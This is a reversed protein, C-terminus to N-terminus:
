SESENKVILDGKNKEEMREEFERLLDDVGHSQIREVVFAIKKETLITRCTLEALNAIKYLEYLEKQTSSPRLASVEIIKKRHFLMHYQEDAIPLINDILIAVASVYKQFNSVTMHSLFSYKASDMEAIVDYIHDIQEMAGNWKSYVNRDPLSPSKKRIRM